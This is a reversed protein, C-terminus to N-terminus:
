KGTNLHRTQQAVNALYTQWNQEANIGLDYLTEWSYIGSHHGDDFHIQIAYNGVPAIGEINVNQKNLQLVAQDPSHGTVEASPSHVRLYEFSYEFTEGTDFSVVLLRSKQKLKIDTAQHM